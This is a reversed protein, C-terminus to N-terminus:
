RPSAVLGTRWRSEQTVEWGGAGGQGEGQATGLCVWGLGVDHGKESPLPWLPRPVPWGAGHGGLGFGARVAAVM